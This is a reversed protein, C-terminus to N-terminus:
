NVALNAKQKWPKKAVSQRQAIKAM